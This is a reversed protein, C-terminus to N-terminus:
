KALQELLDRVVGQLLDLKYGTMPLKAGAVAARRSGCAAARAPKGLLAAEFAAACRMPAIGGTTLRIFRVRWGRGRRPRLSWWRGSRMAASIARKYRAREGALAAPLEIGQDNARCCRQRSCAPATASRRM